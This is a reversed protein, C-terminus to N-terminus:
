QLRAQPVFLSMAENMVHFVATNDVFAGNWGYPAGWLEAARLDTRAYGAFLEAGPGMAWLPVLENTHNGSSWQFGPLNGAGRDQVALYEVFTDEAPHYRAAEIAEGSGDAAVFGGTGNIWTGEGWIGGTEHDSTVILLTEDWSSNAEVWEIVADVAANFDIQEEIFRPMNNAHGMWDVAGGESMLFFGDPDQNLVNLAGITMTALDPVDPNFAMGSPTDGEPLNERSAQLTSNSRAIGVVREPLQEGRALAEFAARDDIFTFGNLGANGTLAAWTERGGVANFARDDDAAPEVANGSGDFMPHGTGMIVALDSGVMENFIGSMDRRTPNHAIVTAPTAHSAQVSSVAGAVRGSAIAIEAITRFPVTGTWDMNIGANSTKRGSHLATGAAASDTYSTYAMEFPAFDNRITADFQMWRTRPDYGQAVVGAAEAPDSGSALLRGASDILNLHDHAQGYVVPTTGDPRETQYSQQGALGQYYDAALWGNFGIGDSIMLIVNRAGGEQAFAPGALVAGLATALFLHHSTTKV